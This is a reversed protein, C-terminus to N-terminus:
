SDSRRASRRPRAARPLRAVRAREGADLDRGNTRRGGRRQEIATKGDVDRGVSEDGLRQEVRQAIAAVHAAHAHQVRRGFARALRQLVPELLEARDDIM